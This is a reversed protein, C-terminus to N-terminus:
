KEIVQTIRYGNKKVYTEAKKIAEKDSKAYIEYTVVDKMDGENTRSEYGQVVFIVKM